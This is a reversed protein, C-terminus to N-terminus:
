DGALSRQHNTRRDIASEIWNSLDSVVKDRDVENLIEHRGGPYLHVDPTLGTLRYRAILPELGGLLSHLPDQDGSMILLPLTGPIMALLAPDALQAAHGLLDGFSHPVLSFGCLPDALYLDVQAEDRSLWDFATRAPEFPRNIHAFLDPDAQGAQALVDVAASGCLVLADILDHHDLVFAQAIMSGMSHGFLVAPLGPNEARALVVLAALDAVVGAFGGPGYDGLPYGPGASHGHGRHDLAYIVAGRAALPALPARYRASHEGMGHAVILVYRATEDSRWRRCALAIGDRQRLAFRVERTTNEPTM